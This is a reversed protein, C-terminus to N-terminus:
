KKRKNQAKASSRLRKVPENDQNVTVETEIGDVTNKVVSINKIISEKPQEKDVLQNEVKKYKIGSQAERLRLLETVTSNYFGDNLKKIKEYKESLSAVESDLQIVQSRLQDESGMDSQECLAQKAFFVTSSLNGQSSGALNNSGNSSDLGNGLYGGLNKLTKRTNNLSFLGYAKSETPHILQDEDVSPLPVRRLPAVLPTKSSLSQPIDNLQMSSFKEKGSGTAAILSKILPDTGFTVNSGSKTSKAFGSVGGLGPFRMCVFVQSIGKSVATSLQSNQHQKAKTGVKKKNGDDSTRLCQRSNSDWVKVTGDSSGSVLLSGDFSLDISNVPGEHGFYTIKDWKNELKNPHDNNTNIGIEIVKGVSYNSAYTAKGNIHAITYLNIKYINGNSPLLWTVLLEAKYLKKKQNGGFMSMGYNGANAQNSEHSSTTIEWCKCTQDKSSTFIRANGSFLHGGKLSSAGLYIATIPMTHSSLSIEPMDSAKVTLDLVKSLVWVHINSDEGGTLIASEDPSTTIVTVPGYHAEWTKLLLGSSTAWCYIKGSYSGGFIYLGSKSATVCSIAEPLPFKLKPSTENWNLTHFQAAQTNGHIALLWPPNNASNKIASPITFGYQTTIPATSLQGLPTGQRLDHIGIIESDVSASLIIESFM